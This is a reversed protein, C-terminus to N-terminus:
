WYLNEAKLNNRDGDNYKVIRRREYGKFASCILRALSVTRRVGNIDRVQVYLGRTNKKRFPRLYESRRKLIDSHRILGESSVEYPYRELGEVTRLDIWM